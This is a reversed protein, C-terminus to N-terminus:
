HIETGFSAEVSDNKSVSSNGCLGKRLATDILGDTQLNAIRALNQGHHYTVEIVM